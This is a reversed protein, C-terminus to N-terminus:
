SRGEVETGEAGWARLFKPSIVKRVNDNCEIFGLVM